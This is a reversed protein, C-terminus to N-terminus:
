AAQERTITSYKAEIMRRGLLKFATIRHRGDCIRYNGDSLTQVHIPPVKGGGELHKVLALTSPNIPHHDMQIQSIFLEKTIRM